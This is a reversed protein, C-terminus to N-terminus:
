KGPHMRAPAKAAPDVPATANRNSFNVAANYTQINMPASARAGGGGVVVVRAAAASSPRIRM